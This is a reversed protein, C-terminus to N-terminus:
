SRQGIPGSGFAEDGELGRIFTEFDPAVFTIKYDLEQDLHVVTPEGNPGFQRYDLCLM